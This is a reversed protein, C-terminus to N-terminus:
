PEVISNRVAYRVLDATTRLNLKRMASSRHTEVTKVSIQLTNAIQKNIRGEAILQVVERERHTLVDTNIHRHSQLFQELLAESVAGSFYPRRVSLADLAALLHDESDSKMVYGRAGARLIGTIIEDRSHMTYILIELRPLERRLAFTLDLGNLQPLSYDVIAIDPATRRAEEIAAHGTAAEAVVVYNARTEILARIGRRLADHDDVILIRKTPLTV